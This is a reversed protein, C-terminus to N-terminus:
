RQGRRRKGTIVSFAAAGSVAAFLIWGAVPAADGTKAAKDASDGSNKDANGGSGTKSGGQDASNQGGTNQSGSNQGDTDQSGGPEQADGSGTGSGDGSGDNLATLGAKAEKLANVADDVKQQDAETLTGDAFVAQASALAARFVAVSEETYRSLDLGAAEDLLAELVDKDAKLRLNEMAAVLTNWATDADGQLADGDALM